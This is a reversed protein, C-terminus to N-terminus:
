GFDQGFLRKVELVGREPRQLIFDAARSGVLPTGDSAIAVASLTSTEGFDNPILETLGERHVAVSSFTTGFDIGVIDRSSSSETAPRPQWDFLRMDRTLTQLYAQAITRYDKPLPQRFRAPIGNPNQDRRQYDQNYSQKLRALKGVLKAVAINQLGASADLYQLKNLTPPLPTRSPAPNSHHTQFTHRGSRAGVQVM